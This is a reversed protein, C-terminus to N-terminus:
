EYHMWMKLVHIMGRYLEGNEDKLKNDNAKVKYVYRHQGNIRRSLYGKLNGILKEYPPPNQYPNVKVIDTFEKAKHSLGIQKLKDLDKQAQRSLIVKYEL